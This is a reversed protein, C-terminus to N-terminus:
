AEVEEPEAASARLLRRYCENDRIEDHKGAAQVRGHDLVVIQDAGRVSAPRHDIVIVTRGTVLHNIAEQIQAECAPDVMAAAEDLILVPTDRLLTRAIAIRQEQGGSLKVEDGIVTDYGNPLKCIEDHIRARKAAEEIKERSAGPRGMAINEAVSARVLLADQLVFGVLSYLQTESMSRMDVGGIKVSGAEPDVFRAVLKALTSKGAGSPGILATITGPACRMSVGDLAITSGYTVRTDSVVVECGCPAKATPEIHSIMPTNRAECIRKAAAGALQYNWAMNAVLTISDPLSIAILCGVIVEVPTVWGRTCLWTGVFGVMLVIVPTSVIGATLASATTLPRNWEEMFDCADEAADAYRRHARGVIGFTKVVAIGKVFEIMAASVKDLYGNLEVSREGVGRMLISFILAYIPISATALLGLRWDIVFAYIGCMVPVCCAVISDVPRHAVLMHLTKVDDSVVKRVHGSTNEGFWDLSTKGLRAVIDRRISAGLRVDALHTILLAIFYVALRALFTSLLVMVWRKVVEPDVSGGSPTVLENGIGVLAVYPFVALVSSVVALTNAILRASRVPALLSALAERGERNAAKLAAQESNQQKKPM